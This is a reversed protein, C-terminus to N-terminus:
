VERFKIVNIHKLNMISESFLLNQSSSDGSIRPFIMKRCFCASQTYLLAPCLIRTRSALHVLMKCFVGLCLYQATNQTTKQLVQPRSSCDSQSIKERVGKNVKSKKHPNNHHNTTLNSLKKHNQRWYVIQIVISYKNETKKRALQFEFYGWM